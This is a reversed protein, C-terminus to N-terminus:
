KECYSMDVKINNKYCYQSQLRGNSYYYEYLGDQKGEKYNAKQALQGNEHYSEFLGDYRNEKFNRKSVLQGNENYSESLGERKGDKNNIKWKLQGNKYYTERLGHAKGGDAKSQYNTRDKLKGNSHFEEKITPTSDAIRQKEEAIRQKEKAIKRDEAGAEWALREREREADKLSELREDYTENLVLVQCLGWEFAEQIAADGRLFPEGGIKDRADNIERVRIAADMNRTESMISCTIAAIRNAKEQALKESAEQEIRQQEIAVQQKEEQSPGCGSIILVSGFILILKKM